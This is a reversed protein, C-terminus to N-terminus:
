GQRPCMKRGSAASVGRCDNEIRAQDQLPGFVVTRRHHVELWLLRVVVQVAWANRQSDWRTSTRKRWFEVPGAHRGSDAQIVVHFCGQFDGSSWLVIEDTELATHLWEGGVPMQEIDGKIAPQQKNSPIANLILHAQWSRVEDRCKRSIMEWM